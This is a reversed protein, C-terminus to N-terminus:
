GRGPTGPVARRAQSDLLRRTPQGRPTNHRCSCDSLSGASSVVSPSLVGSATLPTLGVAFPTSWPTAAVFATAGRRALGAGDEMETGLTHPAHLFVVVVSFRHPPHWIIQYQPAAHWVDWQFYWLVAHRMASGSSSFSAVIRSPRSPSRRPFIPRRLRPLVHKMFEARCHKLWVSMMVLNKRLLSYRFSMLRSLGSPVPPLRAVSYSLRSLSSHNPVVGLMFGALKM